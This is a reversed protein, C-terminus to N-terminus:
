KLQFGTQYLSNSENRYYADIHQNSKNANVMKGAIYRKFMKVFISRGTQVMNRSTSQNRTTVFIFLLCHNQTKCFLIVIKNM